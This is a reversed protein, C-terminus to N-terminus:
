LLNKSSAIVGIWKSVKKRLIALTRAAGPSSSNLLADFRPHASLRFLGDVVRQVLNVVRNSTQLAKLLGRSQDDANDRLHFQDNTTTILFPNCPNFLKRV